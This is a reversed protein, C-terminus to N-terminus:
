HPRAATKPWSTLAPQWIPRLLLPMLPILVAIAMVGGLSVKQLYAMFSLGMAQGVLFTAPDGVLTLLGASNSLMATFIM